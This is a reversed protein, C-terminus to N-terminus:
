RPLLTDDVSVSMLVRSAFVHVALSLSEIMHFDSRVSLIFRLKKWAAITNMSSYPHVMHISILRISFFSSPLSVLISHAINFVDLLCFGVFCCSYPWWGDMVFVMLILHVLYTACQQLLLSLSMLSTSRHDGEYPRAFAPRGTRVLLCCSLASVPHLGSIQHFCPRYLLTALSPCSYGHQNNSMIIIIIYETYIYIYIYHTHAHVFINNFM